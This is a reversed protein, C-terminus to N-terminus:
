SGKGWEKKIEGFLLTGPYISHYLIEEPFSVTDLWGTSIIHLETGGFDVDAITNSTSWKWAFIKNTRIIVGYPNIGPDFHNFDKYDASYVVVDGSGVTCYDYVALPVFFIFFGAVLGQIMGKKCSMVFFRLIFLISVAVGLVIMILGAGACALMVIGLLEGLLEM